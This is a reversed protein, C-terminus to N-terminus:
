SQYSIIEESVAAAADCPAQVRYGGVHPPPSQLFPNRRMVGATVM